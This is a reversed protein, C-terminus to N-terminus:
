CATTTLPYFLISSYIICNYHLNVVRHFSGVRSNYVKQNPIALVDLRTYYIGKFAVVKSGKRFKFDDYFTLDNNNYHIAVSNKRIKSDLFIGYSSFKLFPIGDTGTWDVLLISDLYKNM